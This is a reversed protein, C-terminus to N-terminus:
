HFHFIYSKCFFHEIHHLNAFLYSSFNMVIILSMLTHINKWNKARKTKNYMYMSMKINLSINQKLYSLQLNCTTVILSRNSFKTLENKILYQFCLYNSCFDQRHRCAIDVFQVDNYHLNYVFSFFLSLNCLNKIFLFKAFGIWVFRVKIADQEKIIM